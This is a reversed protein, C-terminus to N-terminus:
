RVACNDGFRVDPKKDLRPVVIYTIRGAPPPGSITSCAYVDMQQAQLAKIQEISLDSYAGPGMLASVCGSLLLMTTILTIVVALGSGLGCLARHQRATVRQNSNQM